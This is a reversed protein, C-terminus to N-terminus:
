LSFNDLGEFCTNNDFPSNDLQVACLFIDDTRETLHKCKNPKKSPVFASCFHLYFGM